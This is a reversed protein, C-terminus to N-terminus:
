GDEASSDPVSILSLNNSVLLLMIVGVTCRTPDTTNLEILIYTPQNEYFHNTGM